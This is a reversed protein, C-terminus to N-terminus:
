RNVKHCNTCGGSVKGAYYYNPEQLSAAIRAQDVKAVFDQMHEQIFPHNGGTEGEILTSATRGMNQLVQIVQQRQGEVGDQTLEYPNILLEDLLLMQQALKAMDSRLEAPQTYKFGPPYTFKRMSEAFQSSCGVLTSSGMILVVIRAHWLVRKKNMNTFEMLVLKKNFTSGDVFILVGNLIFYIAFLKYDIEEIRM